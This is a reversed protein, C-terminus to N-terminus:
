KIPLGFLVFVKLIIWSLFLVLLITYFTSAISTNQCALMMTIIIWYSYVRMTQSGHRISQKMRLDILRYGAGVFLSLLCAGILGFNLYAEGAIGIRLGPHEEPSFGAMSATVVGLAWTDRFSSLFRPVFAFIGALYTKGFLFHGDWFSLVVAFDRTDSFSNGFFTSLVFDTALSTFSLTAQRLAGLLFALGFVLFTGGALVFPGIRRGKKLLFVLVSMQAIGAIASREGFFLLGAVLVVLILAMSREKYEYFRALCYSGILVAYFSSFQAIPRLATNTLLFERLNFNLGSANFFYFLVAAMM